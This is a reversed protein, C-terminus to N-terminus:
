LLIKLTAGAGNDGNKLVSEVLSSDFTKYDYTPVFQQRDGHSLEIDDVGLCDV